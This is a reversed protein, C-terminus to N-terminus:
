SRAMLLHSPSLTQSAQMSSSATYAPLCNKKLHTQIVLPNIPQGLIELLDDDGIFYFRPFSSRKDDLFEKLSKQCRRLQDLMQTLIGRLGTRNVLSMVRNDRQIDQLIDRLEDDVRQFRGQENPLAGRGFIPEIRIWKRQIEKINQLVFDLDTLRNAWKVAKEAFQV